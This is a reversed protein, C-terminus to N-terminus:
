VHMYGGMNENIISNGSSIAAATEPSSSFEDLVTRVLRRCSEYDKKSMVSVPSHIYRCPVAITAVKVGSRSQQIKGADTGGTATQKFQVAIGNHKATYYLYSVFNRDNYATRDMITLAAGKGLSTSFNHEEVGAVDSCTTGELVIAIDPQVTYAATEAGRLGVEEQVTFCAFLDFNYDGNLADLLIACGVRDDLAKAKICDDGLETYESRFYIYEGLPAQKEAEEKKDAGIDIYLSKMKVPKSREEKDLLHVPLCGIVGPLKNEGVLVRKGPLIRADVGGASAFKLLGSDYYGTVMLGVEDMHASLMVRCGQKRGKKFVILNGLSDTRIDDALGEAQSKIFERVEEENGPVGNLDTLQKLLM